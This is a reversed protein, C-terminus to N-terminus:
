NVPWLCLVDYVAYGGEDFDLEDLPESSFAEDEEESVLEGSWDSHELYKQLSLESLPSFNNGEADSPMVVELGDPLEEIIQKLEGVNM